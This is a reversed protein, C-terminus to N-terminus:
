GSAGRRTAAARRLLPNWLPQLLGPALIAPLVWRPACVRGSRREMGRVVAGAAAEPTIPRAAFGPGLRMLSRVVRDHQAGRAMDTDVHGFYCVGVDVGQAAVEQRLAQALAEVGAKSASYTSMLPFHVAAALSSVALIYGRRELVHPLTVRVTRWVSMLNVELVRELAAPDGDDVRGCALVAANAFVVDVVGFREVVSAVTEELAGADTADCRWAHARPGLEAAMTGAADGDIDLLAVNAGRDALLGATAAGIGRAGGTILVTRDDLTWGPNRTM